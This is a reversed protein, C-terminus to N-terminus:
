GCAAVFARLREAFRDPQALHLCHGRDTWEEVAAQPLHWALYAREADSLAHGFVMLGPASVRSMDREIGAQLEDVPTGLLEDWYGLVLEQRIAQGAIVESRLPEPVRDLGLSQQFPAFAQDFGPGRLAPELQRAHAVFPRLDPFSDVIVFGQVSYTAAYSASWHAPSRTDSSSRASSASARASRM